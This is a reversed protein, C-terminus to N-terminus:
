IKFTCTFGDHKRLFISVFRLFLLCFLWREPMDRYRCAQKVEFPLLCFTFSPLVTCMYYGWFLVVANGRSGRLFCSAFSYLVSFDIKICFFMQSLFRNQPLLLFLVLGHKSPNYRYIGATDLVILCGPNISQAPTNMCTM